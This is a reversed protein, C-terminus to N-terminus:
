TFDFLLEEKRKLKEEQVASNKIFAHVVLVIIFIYLIAIAM